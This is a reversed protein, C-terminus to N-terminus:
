FTFARVPPALNGVLSISVANAAAVVTKDDLSKGHLTAPPLARGKGLGSKQSM